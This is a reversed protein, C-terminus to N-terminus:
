FIVSIFSWLYSFHIFYFVAYNDYIYCYVHVNVDLEQEKKIRNIQTDTQRDVVIHTIQLLFFFCKLVM